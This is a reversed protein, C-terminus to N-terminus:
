VGNSGRLLKWCGRPCSWLALMGYTADSMRAVTTAGFRSKHGYSYRMYVKIMMNMKDVNLVVYFGHYSPEDHTRCGPTRKFFLVDGEVPAYDQTVTTIM